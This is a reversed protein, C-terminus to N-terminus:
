IQEEPPDDSKRSTYSANFKHVPIDVWDVNRVTNRITFVVTLHNGTTTIIGPKRKRACYRGLLKIDATTEGDYMNVFATVGNSDCPLSVDTELGVEWVDFTFLIVYGPEASITWKCRVKEKLTDPFGPSEVTGNPSTLFRQPCAQFFLM